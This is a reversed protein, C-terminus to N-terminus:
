HRVLSTTMGRQGSHPDAWMVIRILRCGCAKQELHPARQTWSPQSCDATLFPAALGASRAEARYGLVLGSAMAPWWAV